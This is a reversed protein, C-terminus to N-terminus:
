ARCLREGARAANEAMADAIDTSAMCGDALRGHGEGGREGGACAGLRGGARCAVEGRQFALLPGGPRRAIIRDDAGRQLDDGLLEAFGEIEPGAAFDEVDSG